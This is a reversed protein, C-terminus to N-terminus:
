TLVLANKSIKGKRIPGSILMNIGLIEAESAFNSFGRPSGSLVRRLPEWSFFSSIQGLRKPQLPPALSKPQPVDQLEPVETHRSKRQKKKAKKGDM